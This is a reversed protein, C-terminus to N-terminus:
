RPMKQQQARQRLLNPVGTFAAVVLAISSGGIIAAPWPYGWHLAVTTVGLAALSFVLAATRGSLAIILNHKQARRQLDRRHEAELEFQQFLREAGNEIVENYGQVVEPPPMPASWTLSQEIYIEREGENRTHALDNPPQRPPKDRRGGRAM